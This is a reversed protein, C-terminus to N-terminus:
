SARSCRYASPSRSGAHGHVTAIPDSDQARCAARRAMRGPTIRRRRRGTPGLAGDSRHTKAATSRSANRTANVIAAAELAGIGSSRDIAAELRGGAAVGGATGENRVAVASGPKRSGLRCRARPVSTRSRSRRLREPGAAAAGGARERGGSGPGSRGV